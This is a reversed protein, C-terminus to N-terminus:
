LGILRRNVKYSKTIKIACEESEVYPSINTRVPRRNLSQPPRFNNSVLPGKDPQNQSWRNLDRLAAIQHKTIRLPKNIIIWTVTEQCSPQTLSGEYTIYLGSPPIIDTIAFGNIAYKLGRYRVHKAATLIKDFEFNTMDDITGLVTIVALGHTAMSAENFNRYLDVNYGIIQFEVPFQKGSITHESGIEDYSGFHIKIHNLRYTYSLPGGTFLFSSSNITDTIEFTLDNGTNVLLGNIEIRDYKLATLNPDFILRGPDIDIPSQFKGTGCLSWNKNHTGWFEPGSVGNYGWWEEWLETSSVHLIYLCIVSLIRFVIKSMVKPTM